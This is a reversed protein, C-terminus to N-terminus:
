KIALANPPSAVGGLKNLPAATFFFEHVGDRACDEALNELYFMEGLPMGWLALLTEHMFGKEPHAPFAEVALMDGAVAAFHNDWLFRLTEEGQALGTAQHPLNRALEEREQRSLSLYWEIWGSRVILIDGTQFHVGQDRAAATLNEVTIEYREGPSYQLGNQTAWRRFDVLVGRGAIGRRAWVHIGNRTGAQGTIQETQVGNYFSHHQFNGYHTLGDWQSSSQTNFDNYVDDNVLSRRRKITHKLPERGFLPPDPLELEWNLAFVKGSRVLSAAAAVREPTLLNLTGLEDSEGWLGWASRPPNGPKIPLEDFAPLQPSVAASVKEM